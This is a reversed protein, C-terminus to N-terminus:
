RKEMHKRHHIPQGILPAIVALFTFGLPICPHFVWEVMSTMGFALMIILPFAAYEDKRRRVIYYHVSKCGSLICFVLFVIGFVIGHDYASQLYTNHAHAIEKDAQMTMHGDANLNELYLRWVDLRGNSYDKKDEEQVAEEAPAETEAAATEEGDTTLNQESDTVADATVANDSLSVEEEKGGFLDAFTIEDASTSVRNLMLNLFKPFTMYLDSDMPTDATISYPPWEELETREPQMVVAPLVRTATFCIPLCWLVGAAIFLLRKASDKSVALIKRGVPLIKDQEFVAALLILAVFIVLMTVMGIRSVAMLLYSLTIGLMLTYKILQKRQLAKKQIDEKEM